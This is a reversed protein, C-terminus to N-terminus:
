FKVDMPVSVFRGNEYFEWRWQGDSKLLVGQSVGSKAIFFEPHSTNLFTLIATGDAKVLEYGTATRKAFLKEPEAAKPKEPAPAEVAAVPKTKVETQGGNFKYDMREFSEFAQRMAQLYAKEYDKERTSGEDSTFLVNNTCDRLVVRVKTTFLNSNDQLSAHVKNCPFAAIDTPIVESDLYTEFGYKQLFMKLHTNIRHQDPQKQFEFKAPVIAIRYDNLSTQAAATTVALLFMLFYKM